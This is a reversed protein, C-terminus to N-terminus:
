VVHCWLLSLQWMIQLLDNERCFRGDFEIIDEERTAIVKLVAGGDWLSMRITWTLILPLFMIRDVFFLGMKLNCMRISLFVKLLSKICFLIFFQWCNESWNNHVINEPTYINCYNDKNNVSKHLAEALMAKLLYRYQNSNPLILKKSHTVRLHLMGYQLRLFSEWFTRNSLFLSLIRFEHEANM